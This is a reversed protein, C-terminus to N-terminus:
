KFINLIQNVRRGVHAPAAPDSLFAGLEIPWAYADFQEKTFVNEDGSGVMLILTFFYQMKFCWARALTAAGALTYMNMLFSVSFRLGRTRCWQEATDGRTM